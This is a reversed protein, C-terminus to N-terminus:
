LFRKIEIGKKTLNKMVFPYKILTEYEINPIQLNQIQDDTFLDYLIAARHSISYMKLLELA